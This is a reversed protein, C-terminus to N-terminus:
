SIRLGRTLLSIMADVKPSLQRSVSWVLHLPLGETAFQPLIEVLAGSRLEDEILWTATQTIGFGAKVAGVQAEASGLVMRGTLARGESAGPGNGFRWLTTSGDARGYLVCDHDALDDPIMPAGRSKLYSPSACFILKEAGLYRQALGSVAVNSVGIRVAVDIGEEILDVFRDTFTVMPQVNAFRDAYELLLPLVQMRGFAVPVDIKLRGVPESAHTTLVTEAEALESLVRVCTAYFASGADTLKLSRTTREFLRCGLRAELRGVSKSIASNTLNLAAAAATFSGLDAAQVFAEIGKLRESPIL